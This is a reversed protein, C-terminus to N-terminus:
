DSVRTKDKLHIIDKKPLSSRSFAVDGKGGVEM